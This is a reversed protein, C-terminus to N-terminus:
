PSMRANGTDRRKPNPQHRPLVNTVFRSGHASQLKAASRTPLQNKIDPPTPQFRPIWTRRWRSSVRWSIPAKRPSKRLRNRLREHRNPYWPWRRHGLPGAPPPITFPLPPQCNLIDKRLDLRPTFPRADESGILRMIKGVDGDTACDPGFTIKIRRADFDPNIVVTSDGEIILLQGGTSLFAQPSLTTNM